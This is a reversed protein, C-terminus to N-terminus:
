SYHQWTIPRNFMQMFLCNVKHGELVAHEQSNRWKTLKKPANLKYRKCENM